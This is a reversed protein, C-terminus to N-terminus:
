EAEVDNASRRQVMQIWKAEALGQELERKLEDEPIGEFVAQVDRLSAFAMERGSTESYQRLVDSENMTATARQERGAM